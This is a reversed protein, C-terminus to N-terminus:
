VYIKIVVKHPKKDQNFREKGCEPCKILNSYYLNRKPQDIYLICNNPCVHIITCYNNMNDSNNNQEYTRAAYKYLPLQNSPPLHKKLLDFISTM